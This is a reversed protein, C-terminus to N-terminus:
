SGSMFGREQRLYRGYDREILDIPTLPAPTPPPVVDLQRLHRLLLALTCKDTVRCYRQQALLGAFSGLHAALPGAELPPLNQSRLRFPKIM